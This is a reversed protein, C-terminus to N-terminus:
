NARMALARWVGAGNGWDTSSGAYHAQVMVGQVGDGAQDFPGRLAMHVAVGSGRAPEEM